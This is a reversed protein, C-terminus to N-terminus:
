ETIRKLIQSAEKNHSNSSNSIQVLLNKAEKSQANKLYSLALYWQANEVFLNNKQDIIYKFESIAKENLNAEICALGTYYRIYMNGPDKDLIENFLVLASNFDGERYKTMAEDNNNGASRTLNHANESTYYMEFLNNNTYKVPKILQFAGSLLILFTISAAVIYWHSHISKRVPIIIRTKEENMVFNLKRCLDIIDEQKMSEDIENDLQFEHRLKPNEILEQEFKSRESENMSGFRYQEIIQGHSTKKIM